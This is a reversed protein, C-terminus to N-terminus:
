AKGLVLDVAFCGRVHPGDSLCHGLVQENDCGADMLADALIPLRDFARDEYIGRALGVVDQTRWAPLMTPRRLPNPFVCRLLWASLFAAFVCDPSKMAHDTPRLAFDVFYAAATLVVRPAWSRSDATHLMSALDGPPMVQVARVWFTIHAADGTGVRMPAGEANYEAQSLEARGAQGEVYREGVMVGRRSYAQALLPWIARCCALYYRRLRRHLADQDRWKGRVAKLMELADTSTVWEDATM